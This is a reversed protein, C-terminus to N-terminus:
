NNLNLNQTLFIDLEKMSMNKRIITGTSDLLFTTPFSKVNLQNAEHGNEDIYQYWSLEYEKVRRQWIPVDKIKDTSLGVIEFGKAKFNSYIKKLSPIEDLCPRCRSFWYNILIFKAKPLKLKSATLNVSKLQILPFKGGEKIKAQKVEDNIAIWLMQRKISNSFLNLTRERIKSHGYLAVREILSWLSVYSAPHLVTYDFLLQDYLNNENLVMESLSDTKCNILQNKCFFQHYSSRYEKFTIGDITNCEESSLDIIISKTSADLFYKGGRWARINKDSKFVIRYLQPYNFTNKLTFKNDLIQAALQPTQYYKDSINAPIFYISDDRVTSGTIEGIILSKEREVKQAFSFYFSLLSSCVLLLTKTGIRNKM